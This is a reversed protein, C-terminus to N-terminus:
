SILFGGIALDPAKKQARVPVRLPWIQCGGAILEFLFTPPVSRAAILRRANGMVDGRPARRGCQHLEGQGKRPEGCVANPSAPFATQLLPRSAQETLM